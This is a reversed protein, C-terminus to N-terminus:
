AAAPAETMEDVVGNQMSDFTLYLFDHDLNGGTVKIANEGRSRFAREEILNFLPVNGFSGATQCESLRSLRV